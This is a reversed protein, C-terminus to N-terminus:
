LQFLHRSASQQIPGGRRARARPITGVSDALHKGCNTLLVWPTERLKTRYAIDAM